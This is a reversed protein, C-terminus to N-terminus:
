KKNKCHKKIMKELEGEMGPADVYGLEKARTVDDCIETKNKLEKNVKARQYFLEPDKNYISISKNLDAKAKEFEKNQVFFMARHYWTQYDNPFKQVVENYTRNATNVDGLAYKMNAKEYYAEVLNPNYEIAKDFDKSAAIFNGMISHTQGRHLYAEGDNPELELAKNYEDLAEKYKMMEFYTAAKNFHGEAVNPTLELMKSYNEIAADYNQLHNYAVGRYFYAYSYTPYLEIAQNLDIIAGEYDGIENKMLARKYLAPIDNPAFELVKDYDEIASEFDSLAEKAEARNMYADTYNPKMDIVKSFDEISGEYDYNELRELGRKYITVADSYDETVIQEVPKIQKEVPTVNTSKMTKSPKAFFEEVSRQKPLEEVVKPKEEEIPKPEAKKTRIFQFNSQKQTFIYNVGESIGSYSVGGDKGTSYAHTIKGTADALYVTQGSVAKKTTKNSVTGAYAGKVSDSSFSAFSLTKLLDLPIIDGEKFNVEKPKEEAIQVPKVYVVSATVNKPKEKLIINYNAPALKTFIALGGNKIPRKQVIKNNGDVLFLMAGEIEKNSTKINVTQGKSSILSDKSILSVRRENIEEKTLTNGIEFREKIEEKIKVEVDKTIRYTCSILSTSTTDLAIKYNGPEVKRFKFKGTKDPRIKKIVKNEQNKLLIEFVSFDEVADKAQIKCDIKYITGGVFEKEDIQNLLQSLEKKVTDVKIVEEQVTEKKKKGCSVVLFSCFVLTLASIFIFRM